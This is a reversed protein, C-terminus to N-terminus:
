LIGEEMFYVRSLDGLRTGPPILSPLEGWGGSFISSDGGLDRWLACAFDPMIPASVIAVAKAAALHLAVDTDYHTRGGAARKGEQAEEFQRAARAMDIIVSAAARTSFTEADYAAEAREGMAKLEDYFRHHESTWEGAAPAAGGFDSAVRQGLGRLWLGLGGILEREVTARYESATFNTQEKEPGSYALYFRLGDARTNKLIDRAWVVHNRSTSFKMGDLRYFENTAFVRPLRIETDYAMFIAPFFVSYFFSNDFGCFKVVECEDSKLFREWGGALGLRESLERAAALEGAAMEYWVYFRQGEFGALPVPIGWEAFHSVAIDPLGDALMGDCLARMHPSMIASEYYRRLGAEHPGIPFYLRNFRRIVPSGGCRNCAAERLSVCDNPRGCVECANGGSDSGCHPCKGHVYVEYLYQRCTECYLGDEEKAILNGSALLKAFVEEVLDRHGPSRSPRVYSDVEIRASELSKLIEDGFKEATESASMGLQEGKFAVYSQHDDTGTLYYAEVGRMRLYRTYIDARLYPGSIHGVHLDGNPTPPPAIVLSKRM